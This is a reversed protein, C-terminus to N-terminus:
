KVKLNKEMSDDKSYSTKAKEELNKANWTKPVFVISM